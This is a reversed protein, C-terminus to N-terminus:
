ENPRKDQTQSAVGVIVLFAIFLVVVMTLFAIEGDTMLKGGRDNKGDVGDNPATGSIRGSLAPQLQRVLCARGPRQRM